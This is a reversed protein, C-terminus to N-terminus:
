LSQLSYNDFGGFEVVYDKIYLYVHFLHLRAHTHTPPPCHVLQTLALESGCM